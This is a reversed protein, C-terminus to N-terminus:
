NLKYDSKFFLDCIADIEETTGQFGLGKTIANCMTTYIEPDSAYKTTIYYTGCGGNCELHIPQFLTGIEKKKEGEEFYVIWKKRIISPGSDINVKEITLIM